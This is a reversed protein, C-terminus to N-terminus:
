RDTGGPSAPTPAALDTAGQQGAPDPQMLDLLVAELDAAGAGTFELRAGHRAAAAHLDAELVDVQERAVGHAVARVTVEGEQQRHETIVEQVSGSAVSRGGAIVCVADALGVVDDMMHTTLVVASGTDALARILRRVRRRIAPDMGATPEDLFILEPRGIIALALALRQRQGGSLRRVLTGAFDDIGLHEAVEDVDLPHAHLSAGYRLLQMARAGSALGGDQIMVGVRARHEPGARWPDRGLVTLVGGDPRLLGTACSVATTKGAGNPGLLATVEGRHARLSLGDLARVPGYSHALGEAVLAPQPRSHDTM